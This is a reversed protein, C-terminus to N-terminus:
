RFFPLFVRIISGVSTGLHSKAQPDPVVEPRGPSLVRLGGSGPLQRILMSLGPQNENRFAQRFGEKYGRHFAEDYGRRYSENSPFPQNLKASVCTQIRLEAERPLPRGQKAQRAMDPALLEEACSVIEAPVDPRPPAQASSFVPMAAFLLIGALIPGKKIMAGEKYISEVLRLFIPTHYISEVLRLFIPTHM